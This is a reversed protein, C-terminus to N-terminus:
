KGGWYQQIIRAKKEEWTEPRNSPPSVTSKHTLTKPQQNNAAPQAGQKPDQSELLQSRIFDLQSIEQMEARYYAEVEKMAEEVPMLSGTEHFTLEILEGITDYANLKNVIQFDKQNAQALTKAESIIQQKAAEYHQQMQAQQQAQQQKQYIDLQQRVVEEAKIAAVQEPSQQEQGLMAQTLDEYSIGLRRMAELKNTKAVQELDEYPKWKSAQDGLMKKQQALDKRMQFLQKEKRTLAAFRADSQKEEDTKEPPPAPAEVAAEPPPTPSVAGMRQSPPQTTVSMQGPNGIPTIEAM